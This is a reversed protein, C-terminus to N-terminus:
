LRGDLDAYARLVAVLAVEPAYPAAAAVEEPPRDDAHGDRCLWALRALEDHQGKVFDQDVPAGHGPVVTVTGVLGEVIELLAADTAPWDLPWADGFGPPGSEEVLDGAIVTAADPVVVVLDDDTHGRGLHVLQVTRGGVDLVAEERVTRDPVRVTTALIGDALEPYEAAVTALRTADTRALVDACWEHAWVETGPGAAVANGFCHDFHHHTNVVRYPLPTVRRVAAALEAAQAPTALTDVLLAEDPGVVLTSNVDLVPYRLVFVGDAVEEFRPVTV